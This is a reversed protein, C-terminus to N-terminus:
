GFLKTQKGSAALNLCAQKFYSHKLECGIFERGMNLAVHGESGIGAFPSLIVDGDTSWLEMVRRIVPLQLPCIHREDESERASEKQLTDSMNISSSPDANTKATCIGFGEDDMGETTVWVPSAYRQWREVSFTDNTHSVPKENTGPKYMVILYDPIGQRSRTSDKKIQKHLLGLAKTRQMATVPDKWITVKSHWIWGEAQHCRIIDGPFDRLGIYGHHEKSSPLDMCHIAVLRGPKVVRFLEKALFRYHGFFEQDNSTNGMDRDSASYTYLSSFPLSYVSFDISNDPLGRVIDVCDGRHMAWGKGDVTERVYPEVRRTVAGLEHKMTAEMYRVMESAMEDAAAQKSKINQLVAIEVDTSVVHVHVERTQGFRYERRVAQYFAEWSHSLGVFAMRAAHQMNMGYGFIKVKSILIKSTDRNGCICQPENLDNQTTTFSALESTATLACCGESQEPKIATTLTCNTAECTPLPNEAYRADATNPISCNQMDHMISGSIQDFAHIVSQKQHEVSQPMLVSNDSNQTAQTNSAVNQMILIESNLHERIGSTVIARTTNVCTSSGNMPMSANTNALVNSSKPAIPKITNNGISQHCKEWEDIRADNPNLKLGCKCRKGTFWEVASIKFDDDDSGAVQVAGPISEELADGEDNLEAWVIWPEHPEAAVLEAVKEVRMDLTQRRAKRQELLGEAPMAFLAGETKIGSNIIHEHMHLKPLIYGGADYGIDAPTRIMMAWTAVWRWFDAKAHGKLRWTATEGGDHCFYTALMEVRSMAGVFEAHNGLEVHDNPAPTATCALKFPIGRSGEMLANRFHGDQSKIISSEDIVLGNFRSLDFKHLKEYNAITIHSNISGDRSVRCDIGGIKEAEAVFQGTVALPTLLLVEGPIKQAWALAQRSKGLGTDEFLCARGKRLAWRVVAAQWDFLSPHIDGVEIGTAVHERTKRALFEQYEDTM